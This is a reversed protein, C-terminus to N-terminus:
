YPEFEATLRTGQQAARAEPHEMTLTEEYRRLADERLREAEPSEGRRGRRHGSQGDGDAHGSPEAWRAGAIPWPRRASGSRRPWSVARPWTPPTTSTPRWPSRISTVMTVGLAPGPRSTTDLPGRGRAASRACSRPWTSWAAYSIEVPSGTGRPGSPAGLGLDEAIAFEGVARRDNILNAAARLTHAHDLGLYDRHRQVVEESWQLADWHHGAKRLAAAFGTRANLWDPNERGGAAAFAAVVKRAIDSHNRTAVWDACIAPWWTRRTCPARTTIVSSIAAIKSPGSTSKWPKASAASGGTTPPSTTGCTSRANTIPVSPRRSNRCCAATSSSRRVSSATPACIPATPTPACCPSRTSPATTRELVPRTDLLLRRADAAHGDLQM